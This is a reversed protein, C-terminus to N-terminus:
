IPLSFGVLTGQWRSDPWSSGAQAERPWVWVCVCVCMRAYAPDRVCVQKIPKKDSGRGLPSWRGLPPYKKTAGLFQLQFLLIEPLGQTRFIICSTVYGHPQSYYAWLQKWRLNHRECTSFPTYLNEKGNVRPSASASILPCVTGSWMTLEPRDPPM